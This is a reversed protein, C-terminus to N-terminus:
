KDKNLADRLGNVFGKSTGEAAGPLKDLIKDAEDGIEAVTEKAKTLGENVESVTTQMRDVNDVFNDYRDFFGGVAWFVVVAVVLMSASMAAQLIQTIKM